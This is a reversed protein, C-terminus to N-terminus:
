TRDVMGGIETIVAEVEEESNYYHPSARFSGHRASLFVREQKLTEVVPEPDLGEHRFTLIGSREGAARPSTISFGRSDLGQAMLETLDLIREEIRLAGYQEIETLRERLGFLGVSNETGPEFRDAGPLLDLERRFEFPEDVSLWGVQTVETRDLLRDSLAM